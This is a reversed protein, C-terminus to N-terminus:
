VVPQEGPMVTAIEDDANLVGILSAYDFASCLLYQISELPQSEVPVFTRFDPAVVAWIDLGLPEIHVVTGDIVKKL